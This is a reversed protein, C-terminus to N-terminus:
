KLLQLALQLPLSGLLPSPRNSISVVKCKQPHFKMKNNLACNNLHSIDNQLLEHDHFSSIARWIKTDDAYLALNTDSSLGEPLDNIFLVFLIPGLISGQPVGSLVPKIPSKIGEVAVCQERGSLYNKIFKLLRGDINYKYKLKSLILDHDVSDFAKSFDFYVVDTSLNTDINLYGAVSDTFGVMNTTCSKHSLFGHQRSDLLHSTKDLIKDKILREFTKMVLCTLSIPRYNEINQKCGKKHVPVVHALKWEQPICGSNYSVTFILSLPYAM